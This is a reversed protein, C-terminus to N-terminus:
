KIAPLTFIFRSGEGPVSEVWIRGNHREVIERCIALGLGTGSYKKKDVRFFENFIKGRNEESIGIGTDEVSVVVYNIDNIREEGALVTIKGGAPTFKIANGILNEMVRGILNKDCEVPPLKGPCTETLNIKNQEAAPKMSKVSDRIIDIVNNEGVEIEIGGTAINHLERIDRTLRGLGSSQSVITKIFKEQKESLKLDKERALLQAYNSVIMVKNGMDHAAIEFFRDKTENAEALERTREKVRLDMEDYLVANELSIAAQSCLVNLVEVREPTFANVALNNELYLIGLVEAQKLIPMCLISKIKNERVYSDSVFEGSKAANELVVTERTRKVYNVVGASLADSSGIPISERVKVEEEDVAGEAEIFLENNKVIILFGIEAGANEIMIKMLKILLKNLLIEGSIVRSAKLVTELDIAEAGAFSERGLLVPYKEELDKVKATAGWNLYGARADALYTKAIKERGSELYFKGALECAIAENQIYENERASKIAKDYLEGAEVDKGSIRAMEAAVLLYKHLFNEPCNDSWKKMKKQNSNLIKLYNKKDASSATPYLATITLSQYFYHEPAVLLGIAATLNKECEAAM